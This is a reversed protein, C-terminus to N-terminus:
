TNNVFYAIVLVLAVPVIYVLVILRNRLGHAYKVMGAEVFSERTGDHGGADFVHELTERQVSKFYTAVLWHLVPLGVAALIILDLM